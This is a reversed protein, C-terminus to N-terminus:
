LLKKVEEELNYRPNVAAIKGDRDILFTKPISSVGYEKAPACDWKKLDSVHYEWLLNDKKIADEWRVKSKAIQADIATADKIRNKTRGDLGDLSVSFVTFGDDKYKKYTEVVKPNAKRCPGCWSAWFDILVVNGKLDALSYSKGEPDPLTINPAPMGVQIKQQAQSSLYSKELNGAIVQYKTAYDTDPYSTKVRSLVDKHLQFMDPRGKLTVLLLQMASLPNQSTKAFEQIGNMDMKRNYFKSLADNFETSGASGEIVLDGKSVGTVDGTLKVNKETGDFVLFAKQAGMRLRYVGPDMTTESGLNFNGSDDSEGSLMVMTSNDVNVKDFFVRLNNANEINGTLNFGKSSSHTTSCGILLLLGFLSLLKIASNM